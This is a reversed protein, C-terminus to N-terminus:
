QSSYGTFLIVPRFWKLPKTMGSLAAANTGVSYSFSPNVNHAPPAVKLLQTTPNKMTLDWLLPPFSSSFQFRHNGANALQLLKKKQRSIRFTEKQLAPLNSTWPTKMMGMPCSSKGGAPVYFLWGYDPLSLLMYCRLSYFLWCDNHRKPCPCWTKPNTNIENLKIWIKQTYFLSHCDRLSHTSDKYDALYFPSHFPIVKLQFLSPFLFDGFQSLITLSYVRSSGWM